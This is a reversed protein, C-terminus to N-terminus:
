DTPPAVGHLPAVSFVYDHVGNERLSHEDRDAALMAELATRYPGSYTVSAGSDCVVIHPLDLEDLEMEIVVQRVLAEIKEPHDGWPPRFSDSDTM